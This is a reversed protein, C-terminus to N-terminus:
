IRHLSTNQGHPIVEQDLLDEYLRKVKKNWHRGSRSIAIDSSKGSCRLLNLEASFPLNTRTSTKIADCIWDAQHHKHMPSFIPWVKDMVNMRILLPRISKWWCIGQPDPTLLILIRDAHFLGGPVFPDTRQGSCDLIVHDAIEQCNRFFLSATNEADLGIEYSLYDDENTLGALFLSELKPNLHLYKIVECTGTGIVARGLSNERICRIGPMRVPLTPQTLDTDIIAVLSKKALLIGLADAFTSKGSGDRGWITILM